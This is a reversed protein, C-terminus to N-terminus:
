NSLNQKLLTAVLELLKKTAVPKKMFAAIGLQHSKIENINESYGTCLIIPLTPQLTLLKQALKSGNMNPMTQDTIVLDISNPAATFSELAALPDNFPRVKYGAFNLLETMFGSIGPEDDVVMICKDEVASVTMKIEDNIVENYKLASPQFFLRFSTSVGKVSEVLIHGNCQHLIGHVMSLGMGSGKGIEKTSFFPEFIHEIKNESIGEGNDHICLEIFEGSFNKHCSNCVGQISHPTHLALEIKGQEGIAHHANIILNTIAQHLQNPDAFVQPVDRAINIDITLSSPLTPKLLSLVDRIILEADVSHIKGPSSRGFALMDAVLDQGRKGAHLIETLYKNLKNLPEESFNSKALEAYGLIVSLLNNFDHAIGGTLQGISEMKQSQVLQKQLNKKETIDFFMGLVGKIVGKDSYIPTKITHVYLTKGDEIYSEDFELTNGTEIILQDGDQYEKAHEPHFDYDNKGTINRAEIGLSDAYKQNCSIYTSNVDKLFISHPLKDALTRYKQESEAIVQNTVQIKRTYIVLGLVLAFLLSILVSSTVIIAVEGESYGSFLRMGFWKNYIVQYEGSTKVAKIGENLRNLLEQNGEKVTMSWTLVRLPDGTVKIKNALNLQQALYFAIQEPYIFADVNNNILAILGEAPTNVLYCQIEKFKQLYIHTIHNNVCAVKKGHLSPLNNIDFQQNRVFISEPMEIIPISFDLYSEREATYGTDHIFDAAGTDLWKLADSWFPSHKYRVETGIAKAVASSLDRAFGTLQGKDDLTNIPPFNNSSAVVLPRKISNTKINDPQTASLHNLPFIIYFFSALIIIFKGSLCFYSTLQRWHITRISIFTFKNDM